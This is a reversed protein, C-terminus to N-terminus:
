AVNLLRALSHDQYQVRALTELTCGTRGIAANWHRISPLDEDSESWYEALYLAAAANGGSDAPRHHFRVAEVLHDSFGWAQLLDAGLAAHDRGLLWQEASCPPCGAATLRALAAGAAPLLAAAAIRGIDHMLGLLLAEDTPLIGADGLFAECYQAMWVSHRWLGALKVSTFLRQVALAMLVKRAAETGIYSVAQPISSVPSRRSYLASNATEIVKGAMVPDRGALKALLSVDCEPSGALTCLVDKAVVAQVPLDGRPADPPIPFPADLAQHAAELVQCPVIGRLGDLESWIQASPLAEISSWEMQEDLWDAIRLIDVLLRLNADQSVPPIAHLTRLVESLDDPFRSWFRVRTVKFRDKAAPFLDLLLRGLAGADLLASPSHHLLAAQELTVLSRAALPLRQAMERTLAAVRRCHGQLEAQRPLLADLEAQPLQLRIGAGGNQM